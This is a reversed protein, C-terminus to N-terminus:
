SDGAVAAILGIVLITGVMNGVAALSSLHDDRVTGFSEMAAVSDLAIADVTGLHQLSIDYRTGTGTVQGDEIVFGERYVITSGDVLHAKTYPPLQTEGPDTLPVAEHNLRTLTYCAGTSVTLLVVAFVRAILRGWSV